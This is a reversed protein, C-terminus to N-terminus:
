NLFPRCVFLKTCECERVGVPFFIADYTAFIPVVDEYFSKILVEYINYFIILSRLHLYIYM